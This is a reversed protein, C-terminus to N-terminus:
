NNKKLISIMRSILSGIFSGICIGIFLFHHIATKVEMKHAEVLSQKDIKNVEEFDIKDIHTYFFNQICYAVLFMILITVSTITISFYKKKTLNTKEKKM